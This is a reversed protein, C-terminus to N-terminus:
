TSINSSTVEKCRIDAAVPTRDGRVISGEGSGGKEEGGKVEGLVQVEEEEGEKGGARDEILLVDEAARSSQHHSIEEQYNPSDPDQGTYDSSNEVSIKCSPSNTANEMMAPNQEFSEEDSQSDNPSKLNLEMLYDGKRELPENGVFTRLLEESKLYIEEQGVETEGLLEEEKEPDVEGELEGEPGPADLLSNVKDEEEEEDVGEMQTDIDEPKEELQEEEEMEEEMAKQEEREEWSDPVVEM